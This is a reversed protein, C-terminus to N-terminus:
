SWNAQTLTLRTVSCLQWTDHHCILLTFSPFYWWFVVHPGTLFPFHLLLTQLDCTCKICSAPRITHNTIPSILAPCHSHAIVCARPHWMPHWLPTNCPQPIQLPSFTIYFCFYLPICWYWILLSMLPFTMTKSSYSQCNLNMFTGHQSMHCYMGLLLPYPPHLTTQHTLLCSTVTTCYQTPYQNQFSIGPELPPILNSTCVIGTVGNRTLGWADM